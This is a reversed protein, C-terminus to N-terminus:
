NVCKTSAMAPRSPVSHFAMSFFDTKNLSFLLM